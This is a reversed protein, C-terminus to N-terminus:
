DPDAGILLRKEFQADIKGTPGRVGLGKGNEYDIIRYKGCGLGRLEIPGDWDAAYFAYFM